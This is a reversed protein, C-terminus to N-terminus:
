GSRVSLTLMYTCKLIHVLYSILYLLLFLLTTHVLALSLLPYRRILLLTIAATSLCTLYRSELITIDTITIHFKLM